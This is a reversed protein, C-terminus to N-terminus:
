APQLGRRFGEHLAEVYSRAWRTDPTVLSPM